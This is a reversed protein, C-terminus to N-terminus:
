AWSAGSRVRGAPVDDNWAEEGEFEEWWEIDQGELELEPPVGESPTAEEEDAVLVTLIARGEPLHAPLQLTIARDAPIHIETRYRRM